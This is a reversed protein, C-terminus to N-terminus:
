DLLYFSPDIEIQIYFFLTHKKVSLDSTSAILQFKFKAKMLKYFLQFSGTKLLNFTMM